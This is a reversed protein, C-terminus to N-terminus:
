EDRDGERVADERRRGHAELVPGRAGVARAVERAEDEEAREVQEEVARQDDVRARVARRPEQAAVGAPVLELAVHAGGLSSPFGLPPPSCGDRPTTCGEGRRRDAA